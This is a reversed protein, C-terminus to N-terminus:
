LREYIPQDAFRAAKLHDEVTRVTWTLIPLGRARAQAVFPSPLDRVDCAIFEPRAHWLSWRRELWGRLGQKGDQTVVLGRVLQPAHNAFWGVIRPDFSMVAAEGAYNEVARAIARCLPLRLRDSRKVEILVPVRGAVFTLTQALTALTEDTGALPVHALERPERAAVRGITPTLRDLHEDHFVIPTGDAAAQVDLEIGHGEAIAARFAARSNEVM